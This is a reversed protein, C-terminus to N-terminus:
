WGDARPNVLKRHRGEVRFSQRGRGRRQGRERPQQQRLGVEEKRVGACPKRVALTPEGRKGSLEARIGGGDVQCSAHTVVLYGHDHIQTVQVRHATDSPFFPEFSLTNIHCHECFEVPDHDPHQQVPREADVQMGKEPLGLHHHPEVRNSHDLTIQRHFGLGPSQVPCLLMFPAYDAIRASSHGPEQRHAKLSRLSNGRTRPPPNITACLIVGPMASAANMWAAVVLTFRSVRNRLVPLEPM